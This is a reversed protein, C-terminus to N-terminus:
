KKVTFGCFEFPYLTSLTVKNREASGTCKIYSISGITEALTVEPAKIKDKSLNWLGVSLGQDDKKCMIYLDPNGPCVAPLPKGSLWECAQQVQWAKGYSRYGEQLTRVASMTTGADFGLVYFRQGNANEYLYAAPYKCIHGSGYPQSKIGGEKAIYYSLVKAKEDVVLACSGKDHGSISHKVGNMFNEGTVALPGNFSRLGVDIGKDQLFKAGFADTIIGAKLADEDLYAANQGFAIGLCGDGEYTTPISLQSLFYGEKPTMSFAYKQSTEVFKEPFQYVRVGTAQKGSFAKSIQGYLEMNDVHADVYGREYNAPSHYDFMYKLVGSTNGDARLATDFCELYSAPTAYRPRPYSDAESMIEINHGKLHDAQAREYEITNVLRNPYDYFYDHYPAGILRVFPRTEGALIKALKQVSTGNTYYDHGNVCFGIRVHPNVSDVAARMRKSFNELSAGMCQLIMERHRNPAPLWFNEIATEFSVETGFMDEFLKKHHKCFCGCINGNKAHSLHYDDDFMILDIGMAALRRMTEEQLRVLKEDAPCRWNNKEEGLDNMQLSIDNTDRVITTLSWSGVEFGHRKFFSLNVQLTSFEEERLQPDQYNQLVLFIRDAGCRKCESLAIMRKEDSDVDASWLPVSLGYHNSEQEPSYIPSNNDKM